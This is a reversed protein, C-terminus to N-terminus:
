KARVVHDQLVVFARPARRASPQSPRLFEYRRGDASATRGVTADANSGIARGHEQLWRVADDKEPFRRLRTVCTENGATRAIWLHTSVDLHILGLTLHDNVLVRYAALAGPM